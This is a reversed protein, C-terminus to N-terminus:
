RPRSLKQYAIGSAVHLDVRLAEPLCSCVDRKRRPMQSRMSRNQVYGGTHAHGSHGIGPDRMIRSEPKSGRM